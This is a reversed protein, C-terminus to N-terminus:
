NSNSNANSKHDDDIVVQLLERQCSSIPERFTTEFQVLTNVTTTIPFRIEGNRKMM